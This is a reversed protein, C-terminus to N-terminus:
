MNWKFTPIIRTGPIWSLKLDSEPPVAGWMTLKVPKTTTTAPPTSAGPKSTEAQNGSGGNTCGAMVGMAVVAAALTPIWKRMKM